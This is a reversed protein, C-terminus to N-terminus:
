KLLLMRRQSFHREGRQVTHSLRYVYMGSAFRTADLVAQHYGASQDEELLAAIEQGLLNYIKLSVRGDSPLQYSITTAPNFPNPYNQFLEFHDPPAVAIKVEKSWSEGSGTKIVFSLTHEKKVPASKDVSFTFLLPTEQKAKLLPLTQRTESFRLWGPVNTAEIVINQMPSGSTNAVTLEISNGASAFPLEYITQAASPLTTAFLWVAITAIAEKKM